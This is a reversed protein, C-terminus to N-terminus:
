RKSGLSLYESHSKCLESQVGLGNCRYSSWVYEASDEVMGARVPNQEIYRYCALLYAGTQVACSKYRGEWLTGSRCYTYNFYQVYRRGLSQMM